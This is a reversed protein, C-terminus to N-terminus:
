LRVEGQAIVALTFTNEQTSSLPVNMDTSYCLGVFFLNKKPAKTKVGTGPTIQPASESFSM